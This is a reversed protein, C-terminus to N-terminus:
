RWFGFSLIYIVGVLPVLAQTLSPSSARPGTVADESIPPIPSQQPLPPPPSTLDPAASPVRIPSQSSTDVHNIAQVAESVRSGSDAGQAPQTPKSVEAIPVEDSGVRICEEASKEKITNAGSITRAQDNHIPSAKIDSESM